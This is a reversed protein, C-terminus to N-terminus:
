EDKYPNEYQEEPEDEIISGTMGGYIVDNAREIDKDKVWNGNRRKRAQREKRAQWIDSSDNIREWAKIDNFIEDFRNKNKERVFEKFEKKEKKTKLINDEDGFRVEALRNHEEIMKPKQNRYWNSKAREKAEEETFLKKRGM